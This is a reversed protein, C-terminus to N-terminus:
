EHELLKPNPPKPSKCTKSQPHEVQITIGRTSRLGWQGELKKKRRRKRRLGSVGHQPGWGQSRMVGQDGGFVMLMQSQPNLKWGM